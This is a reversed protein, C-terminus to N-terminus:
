YVSLFGAVRAGEKQVVSSEETAAEENLEGQAFVNKLHLSVNDISCDFLEAM